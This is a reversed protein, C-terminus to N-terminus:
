ERRVGMGENSPLIPGIIAISCNRGSMRVFEVYWKVAQNVNLELNDKQVTLLM